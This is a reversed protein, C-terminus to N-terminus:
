NRVQQSPLKLTELSVLLKLYTQTDSLDIQYQEELKQIHYIVNNRHMGLKEAANTYNRGSFLYERLIALLQWGKETNRLYLDSICPECYFFQKHKEKNQYFLDQIWWDEYFYVCEDEPSLPSKLSETLLLTDEAQHYAAPFLCM